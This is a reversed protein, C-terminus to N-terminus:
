RKIATGPPAATHDLKWRIPIRVELGEVPNGDQTRLDMRFLKAAELSAKGFGKGRPTEEVVRCEDLTQDAKVVCSLVVSGEVGAARAGAPYLADLPDDAQARVGSAGALVALSSLAVLLTKPPM